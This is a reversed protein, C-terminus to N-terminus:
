ETDNNLFLIYDAEVQRAAENNLWAYSFKGGPCSLRLVRCRPQIQQLYTLTAPDDSDNDIIVIEYNRYTTKKVISEICRKLLHLPNRTPILTAVRPGDDRFDLQYLGLNGRVAFDPRSVGANVGRRDLAEQVARRGREFAAPKAGGSSATSNPLCRWHYL